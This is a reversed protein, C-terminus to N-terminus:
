TTWLASVPVDMAALLRRLLPLSLGVVNSPDGDVGEVFPGGIGDLTFAGAVALPEGTAVYADIEADSVEAFRVVTAAVGVQEADDSVRVLCHGTRLTASRGNLHARWRAAAEAADLPKGHVEGDVDLVSDCGLVYAEGSGEARLAGAVDYAKARALTLCHASANDRIAAPLAALVAPEDVASVRVEAIIGAAALLRSRAPSASALM